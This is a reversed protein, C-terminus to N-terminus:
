LRVRENLLLSNRVYHSKLCGPVTEKCNTDLFCWTMQRVQDGHPTEGQSHSNEFNDHLRSCLSTWMEFSVQTRLDAEM